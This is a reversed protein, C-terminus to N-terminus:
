SFVLIYTFECKIVFYWLTISYIILARVFGFDSIVASSSCARSSSSNLVPGSDTRVCDTFFLVCTSILQRLLLFSNPRTFANSRWQLMTSSFTFSIHVSLGRGPLPLFFAFGTFLSRNMDFINRLPSATIKTTRLGEAVVELLYHICTIIKNNQLSYEVKQSYCVYIIKNLNVGYM